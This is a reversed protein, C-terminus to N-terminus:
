GSSDDKGHEFESTISARLAADIEAALAMPAIPKDLFKVVPLLEDDPEFRLRRGAVDHIASVMLVPVPPALHHIRGALGFGATLSEMMVDLVIVDFGGGGVQAEAEAASAASSVRYGLAELVLRNMDVFDADDDVILVSAGGPGNHTM